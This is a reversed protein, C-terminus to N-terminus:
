GSGLDLFLKKKMMEFICIEVFCCVFHMRVDIAKDFEKKNQNLLCQNPDEESYLYCSSCSVTAITHDGFFYVEVLNSDDRAKTLKAPWYPYQKFKVWLLLHPKSCVLTFGAPKERNMYCDGCLKIEDIEKKCVVM